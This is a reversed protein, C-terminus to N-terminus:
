NRYNLEIMDKTIPIYDVWVVVQPLNEFLYVKNKDQYLTKILKSDIPYKNSEKQLEEENKIQMIKSNFQRGHSFTVDGYNLIQKIPIKIRGVIKNDFGFLDVTTFYIGYTTYPKKLINKYLKNYVLKFYENASIKKGDRNEYKDLEKNSKELKNVSILKKSQLIKKINSKDWIYHYVYKNNPKSKLKNIESEPIFKGLVMDINNEIAYNLRHLGDLILIKDGYSTLILPTSLDPKIKRNEEPKSYKLIWKLDNVKYKKTKYKTSLKILDNVKYKRNNHTFSSSESEIYKELINKYKYLM